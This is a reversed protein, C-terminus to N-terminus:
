PGLSGCPNTGARLPWGPRLAVDLARERVSHLPQHPNHRSIKQTTKKISAGGLLLEAEDFVSLSSLSDPPSSSRERRNPIRRNFQTVWM